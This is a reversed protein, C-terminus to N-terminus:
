LGTGFGWSFEGIRGYKRRLGCRAQLVHFPQGECQDEQGRDRDRGLRDRHSGGRRGRPQHLREDAVGGGIEAVEVRRGTVLRHPRAVAARGRLRLRDHGDEGVRRGPAEVRGVVRVGAEGGGVRRDRGEVDLEGGGHHPVDGIDADAADTRFFDLEREVDICVLDVERREDRLDRGRVVDGGDNGRRLRLM